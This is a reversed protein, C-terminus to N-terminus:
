RGRPFNARTWSPWLSAFPSYPTPLRMRIPRAGEARRWSAGPLGAVRRTCDRVLVVV